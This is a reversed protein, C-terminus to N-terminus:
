NVFYIYTTSSIFYNSFCFFLIIACPLPLLARCLVRQRAVQRDARCLKAARCHGPRQRASKRQRAAQLTKATRFDKGHAAGMRQRSFNRQRAGYREKGHYTEKGHAASISQRANKRQRASKRSRVAFFDKGHLLERCLKAARCRRIKGYHNFLRSVM